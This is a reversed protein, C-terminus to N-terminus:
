VENNLVAIDKANISFYSVQVASVQMDAIAHNNSDTDTQISTCGDFNVPTAHDDHRPKDISMPM